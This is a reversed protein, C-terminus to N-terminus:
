GPNQKNLNVYVCYFSSMAWYTNNSVYDGRLEYIFMEDHGKIKHIYQLGLWIGNYKWKDIFKPM